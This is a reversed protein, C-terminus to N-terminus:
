CMLDFLINVIKYAINLLKANRKENGLTIYLVHAVCFCTFLCALTARMNNALKKPIIEFEILLIKKCM